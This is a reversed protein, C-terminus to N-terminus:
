STSTKTNLNVTPSSPTSGQTAATPANLSYTVPAILGSITQGFGDVASVKFTNDGPALPIHLAYNGNVDATTTTIPATNNTDTYTIKAGPTATGQMIINQINTIRDQLGSDTSSNLNASVVPTITLGAGINAQTTKLDTNNIVGDRNADAAFVYSTSNANTNLDQKVAALDTSNVVGDGNVDGPLFFGVLLAGSTGSKAQVVVGYDHASSVQAATMKLTFQVSTTQKGQGPTAMQVAYSYTGRTIPLMKHTQMDMIGVIKPVVTSGSQAAVDVGLTVQHKANLTILSPTYTFPVTVKPATATITAPLIAFTNGAGSTMLNRTELSEPQFRAQHRRRDAPRNRNM